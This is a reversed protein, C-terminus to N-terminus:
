QLYRAQGLPWVIYLGRGKVQESPVLGVMPDRSDMSFGRNDGLVFYHNATVTVPAMNGDTKRGDLYPENLVNENLIVHGDRIEVKDGPIGIVRKVFDNRPDSPFRFVVIDGHQLQSRRVVLIKQGTALTPLMSNGEVTFIAAVYSRILAAIVVALAISVIWELVDQRRSREM